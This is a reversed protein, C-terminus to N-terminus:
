TKLGKGYQNNISITLGIATTYNLSIEKHIIPLKYAQAAKTNPNRAAPKFNVWPDGLEVELGLATKLYTTIGKLLAGGGCIIIKTINIQEQAHIHEPHEQYYKLVRKIEEALASVSPVLADFVQGNQSEKDLGMDIKIKEAQKFDVNLAKALVDTVTNGAISITSTFYLTKGNFIILNTRNDGIDVILVPNLPTELQSNIISKMVLSSEVEMLVPILRLDKLFSVYSDVIYKPCATLLVDMHKEASNNSDQAYKEILQWNIYLEDLKLPIEAEAAWRIAENIEKESMLPLSVLRIFSKEEPLACGVYNTKIKEGKMENLMNKILTGLEKPNKIEGAEVLGAPLETSGFSAIRPAKKSAKFQVAKASLDSIDLGLYTNKSFM